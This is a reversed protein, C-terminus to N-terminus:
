QCAECDEDVISCAELEQSAASVANLEGTEITLEIGKLVEVRTEGKGFGHQLKGISLLASM